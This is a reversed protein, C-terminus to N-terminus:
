NSPNAAAATGGKAPKVTKLAKDEILQCVEKNGDKVCDKKSLAECGMKAKIKDWLPECKASPSGTWQCLGGIEKFSSAAAAVLTQHVNTGTGLGLLLGKCDSEGTAAKCPDNADKAEDRQCSNAETSRAKCISKLNAITGDSPGFLVTDCHDAVVATEAAAAAGRIGAIACAADTINCKGKEIWKCVKNDKGFKADNCEKEKKHDDSATKCLAMWDIDAKPACVFKAKGGAGDPRNDTTNQPDPQGAGPSNPKDICKDNKWMCKNHKKCMDQKKYEGCPKDKDGCASVLAMAGAAGLALLWKSKTM